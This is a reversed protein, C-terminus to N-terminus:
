YFEVPSRWKLRRLVPDSEYDDATCACGGQPCRQGYAMSATKLMALRQWPELQGAFLLDIGQCGSSPEQLSIAEGGVTSAVRFTTGTSDIVYVVTSETLGEPIAAVEGLLSNNNGSCSIVVPEDDEFPYGTLSTFVYTADGSDSGDVESFTVPAVQGAWFEIVVADPRCFTGPWCTSNEPHLMGPEFDSMLVYDDYTQLSDDADYYSVSIIKRVPCMELAIPTKGCPFRSLTVRYKRVCLARECQIEIDDQAALVYSKILSNERTGSLRLHSRVEGPSIVPLMPSFGFPTAQILKRSQAYSSTM